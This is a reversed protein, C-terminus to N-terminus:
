CTATTRSSAPSAGMPPRSSSPAGSVATPAATADSPDSVVAITGGGLNYLNGAIEFTNANYALLAGANSLDGTDNFTANANVSITGTNIVTGPQGSVLFTNGSSTAGYIANGVNLTGAVNLTSGSGVVLGAVTEDDNSALNVVPTADTYSSRIAVYEDSSGPASGVSGGQFSWNLDYDWSSGGGAGTWETDAITLTTGAGDDYTSLVYSADPNLGSIYVTDHEEDTIQLVTGSDVWSFSARSPDIGGLIIADQDSVFDAVMLPNLQGFNTAADVTLTEGDAAFVVTGNQSAGAGIEANAGILDLTGNVAGDNVFTECPAGFVNIQNASIIGTNM